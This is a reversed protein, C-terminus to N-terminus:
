TEKLTRPPIHRSNKSSSPWVTLSLTAYTKPYLTCVKLLVNVQKIGVIDALFVLRDKLYSKQEPTAYDSVMATFAPRFICMGAVGKAQSNASTTGCAFDAYDTQFGNWSCAYPLAAVIDGIRRQTAQVAVEYEEGSRWDDPAVLWARCRFICSTLFLHSTWIITYIMCVYLNHFSYVDGPPPPAMGYTNTIGTLGGAVAREDSKSLRWVANQPQDLSSLKRSLAQATRLLDLVTQITQPDRQQRARGGTLVRDVKMRIESCTITLTAVRSVYADPCSQHLLWAYDEGRADDFSPTPSMSRLALFQNRTMSFMEAGEDTDNQALSRM